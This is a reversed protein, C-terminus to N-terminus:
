KTKSFLTTRPKTSYNASANNIVESHNMDTHWTHIKTFLCHTPYKPNEDRHILSFAVTQTSRQM